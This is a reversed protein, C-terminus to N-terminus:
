FDSTERYNDITKKKDQLLKTLDITMFIGRDDGHGAVGITFKSRFNLSVGYGWDDVGLRDSYVAILAGGSPLYWKDQQWWDVGIAELMLAEKFQDGDIADEVNEVVVSPHMLVLQWSPPESFQYAKNNRQFIAGNALMEWFMQSKSEEYFANWRAELLDLRKSLEIALPQSYTGQAFNYIEAFEELALQCDMDPSKAKAVQNCSALLANEIPYYAPHDMSIALIPKSMVAFSALEGTSKMQSTEALHLQLYINNAPFLIHLDGLLDVIRSQLEALNAISKNCYDARIQKSKALTAAFIKADAVLPEQKCREQLSQDKELWDQATLPNEAFVSICVSLLLGSSFIKVLRFNCV